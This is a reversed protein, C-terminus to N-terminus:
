NHNCQNAELSANSMELSKILEDKEKLSRALSKITRLQNDVQIQLIRSERSTSAQQPWQSAKMANETNLNAINLAEVAASLHSKLQEREVILSGREAILSSMSRNLKGNENKLFNIQNEQDAFLNKDIVRGASLNDTLNDLEIRLKRQEKELNRKDSKLDKINVKRENLKGYTKMANNRLKSHLNVLEKRLNSHADILRNNENRLSDVDARLKSMEVDKANLDDLLKTVLSSLEELSERSM